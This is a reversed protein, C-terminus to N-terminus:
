TNPSQTMIEDIHILSVVSEPSSSPDVIEHAQAQTQTVAEERFTIMVAHKYLMAKATDLNEKGGIEKGGVEEINNKMINGWDRLYHMMSMNLLM